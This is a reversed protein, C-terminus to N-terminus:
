GISSTDSLVQALETQFVSTWTSHHGLIKQAYSVPGKPIRRQNKLADLLNGPGWNYAILTQERNGDFMKELYKLYQIGLRINFEPDRLQHSGEWEIDRKQSIYKGTAPLIQMLGLAGQNSAVHSRFTSESKIVAAVFLPDYDVKRCENVIALALMMADNPAVRAEQIISAIFQVKHGLAVRERRAIGALMQSRANMARRAPPFVVHVESDTLLEEQSARSYSQYGLTTLSAVIMVSVISLVSSRVREQREAVRGSRRRETIATGKGM